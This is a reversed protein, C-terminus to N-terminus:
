VRVVRGRDKGLGAFGGGKLAMRIDQEQRRNIQETITDSGILAPPKM